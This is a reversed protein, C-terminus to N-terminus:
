LSFINRLQYLASICRDIDEETNYFYFSIRTTGPIKLYRMLPEACHNGSRVCVNKEGLFTAVDHPHIGEMHFSIIGGRSLFNQPGFIKIGPIKKLRPLGYQFLKMEYQHIKKMGIKQLYRVAEGLGIAGAINPTGAEFKYPLENWTSREKSVSRIMDGGGLFPPMSNLLGEKGYLVGIGTPGCMKHGTCVYFDVGLDQVNIELHAASQAGDVLMLAGHQHALSALRKIPNITGLVNSEHVLSLLKVRKKLFVKKLEMEDLRGTNTLGCFHLDIGIRERLLQWPVINSHHEMVSLVVTDGKKLHQLGWTFAVLNIAETANRTFIIEKTSKAHIFAQIIKRAAEYKTTAIESLPYLSRHINARYKLYYQDMAKVVQM